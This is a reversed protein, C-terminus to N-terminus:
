QPMLAIRSYMQGSPIVMSGMNNFKYTGGTDRQSMQVSGIILEAGAVNQVSRGILQDQEIVLQAPVDDGAVDPKLQLRGNRAALWGTINAFRIAAEPRGPEALTFFTGPDGEGGVPTYAFNPDNLNAFRMTASFGLYTEAGVPPSTLMHFRDFELNIKWDSINVLDNVGPNGLNAINGGGFRGSFAIRVPSDTLASGTLLDSDGISIGGPLMNIYLNNAALLYSSNIFGIGLGTDADGIMFHSGYGWNAGQEVSNGDGDRDFVDFTQAMAVVDAKIGTKGAREDPRLFANADINGLTFMLTWGMTKDRDAPDPALPDIIHVDTSYGRVFGDRILVAMSNDEPAVEIYQGGHTPASCSAAPGEWDAGWCLGGPGRGARIMDIAILPFELAKTIGVASSGGPQVTNPLTLWTGFELGPAAVSDSKNDDVEGVVWKFNPAYNWAMSLNIGETKLTRNYKENVGSGTLSTNVWSGGGRLRVVADDLGGTWGYHLIPTDAATVQFPSTGGGDYHLDFTLNFDVDGSIVIGTSDIGVTGQAMDWKFDLDHFVSEPANVGTGNRIFFDADDLQLLLKAQNSATNFLGGSGVLEFRGSADLAFTGMNVQANGATNVLEQEFKIRGRQWESTIAIGPLGAGGGDADITTTVVFDGAAAAGNMGIRNIAINTLSLKAADAGTLTSCLTSSDFCQDIQDITISPTSIQMTVGDQATVGSLDGDTLSQMASASNAAMVSLALISLRHLKNNKNMKKIDIARLLPLM